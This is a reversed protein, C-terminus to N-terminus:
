YDDLPDKMNQMIYQGQRYEKSNGHIGAQRNSEGAAFVSM